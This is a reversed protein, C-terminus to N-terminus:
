LAVREATAQSFRNVAHAPTTMERTPTTIRFDARDEVRRILQERELVIKQDVVITYIAKAGTQGALQMETTQNAVVGAKFPAGEQYVYLVGGMPDPVSTKDMIVFDTKLYDSLAM